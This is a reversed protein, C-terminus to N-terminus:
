QALTWIEKLGALAAAEGDAFKSAVGRKAFARGYWACLAADGVLDVSADASAAMIPHLAAIEAGILLGSLYAASNGPALEGAILRGRLSFLRASLAGGDGAAGLGQDFAEADNEIADGARQGFRLTGHDNLLAYLEGTMATIFREVRGDAVRVWKAHTGPHCVLRRGSARAPDSALWGLLQTEEGRMVDPGALGACRLGPVIWVNPAATTLSRAIAGLRAPCEVYGASVWGLNSGIMGSLLAPMGQADMAPRVEDEFREAAEGPGLGGVGLAFRRFARVDGDPGIVWTRLRTTGWDGLLVAM